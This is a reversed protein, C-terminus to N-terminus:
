HVARTQGFAHTRTHTHTYTHTHTAQSSADRLFVKSVGVQYDLGEVLGALKMIDHLQQIQEPETESGKQHLIAFYRVFDAVLYRAPYRARTVRVAEIVGGCRLQHVILASEFLEAQKKSNSNM